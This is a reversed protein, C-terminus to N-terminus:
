QLVSEVFDHELLFYSHSKYGHPCVTEIKIKPSTPEFGVPPVNQWNGNQKAVTSKSVGRSM